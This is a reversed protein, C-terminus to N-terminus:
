ELEAIALRSIPLAKEDAVNMAQQQHRDRERPTDGADCVGVPEEILRHFQL